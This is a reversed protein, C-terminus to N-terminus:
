QWTVNISASANCWATFAHFSGAATECATPPLTLELVGTGPAFTSTDVTLHGPILQGPDTSRAMAYHSADDRAGLAVNDSMAQYTVPLAHERPLLAGAAPTLIEPPVPIAITFSASRGKSTYICTFPQSAAGDGPPSLQVDAEYPLSSLTVPAAGDCALTEGERFSVVQGPVAFTVSVNTSYSPLTNRSVTVHAEVDLASPATDPLYYPPPTGRSCMLAVFVLTALVLTRPLPAHM